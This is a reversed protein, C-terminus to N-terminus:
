PVPIKKVTINNSYSLSTLSLPHLAPLTYSVSYITFAVLFICFPCVKVDTFIGMQACEIPMQKIEYCNNEIDQTESQRM